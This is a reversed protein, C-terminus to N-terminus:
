AGAPGLLKCMRAYSGIVKEARAYPEADGGCMVTLAGNEAGAQGGSVPADVFGFGRQKAQAYLERAIEASATTHDVVIAGKRAGAFIGESGLMVERVDNDNGVCAMIFDQGEAAAKPTPAAKGGFQTVWKDAKAAPRNFVTVEHGAKTMLHGAMPYGMVGLGVFAVKAMEVDGNIRLAGSQWTM